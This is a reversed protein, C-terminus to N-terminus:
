LVKIIFGLFRDLVMDSLGVFLSLLILSSIVVVTSEVLEGRKPWTTKHVEAGVDGFFRKAGQLRERVTSM